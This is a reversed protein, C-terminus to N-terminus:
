INMKEPKKRLLLSRTIQYPWDEFFADIVEDKAYQIKKSASTSNKRM